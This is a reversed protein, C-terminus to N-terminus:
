AFFIFIMRTRINTRMLIITISKEIRVHRMCEEGYDSTFIVVTDDSRNDVADLIRGIDLDAKEIM